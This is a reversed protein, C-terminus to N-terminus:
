SGLEERGEREAGVKLCGGFASAGLPLTWTLSHHSLCLSISPATASAAPTCHLSKPEEDPGCMAAGSIVDDCCRPTLKCIPM